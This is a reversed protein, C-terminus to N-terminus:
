PQPNNDQKTKEVDDIVLVTNIIENRDDEPLALLTTIFEDIRSDRETYRTRKM